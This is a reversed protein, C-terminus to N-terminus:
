DPLQALLVSSFPKTHKTFVPCFIEEHKVSVNSKRKRSERVESM